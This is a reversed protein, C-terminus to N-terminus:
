LPIDKWVSHSVLGMEKITFMLHTGIKSGNKNIKDSNHKIQIVFDTDIAVNQFIKISKNGMELKFEKIVKELLKIRKNINERGLRIEIIELWKM